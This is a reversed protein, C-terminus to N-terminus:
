DKQEIKLIVKRKLFEGVTFVIISYPIFFVLALVAKLTWGIGMYGIGLENVRKLNQPKVNELKEKDNMYDLNFGYYKLLLETQFHSWWAM